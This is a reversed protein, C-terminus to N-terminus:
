RGVEAHEIWHQLALLEIGVAGIYAAPHRLKQPQRRLQDMLRPARGRELQFAGIDFEAAAIGLRDDIVALAALTCEGGVGPQPLTSNARKEKVTKQIGSDHGM